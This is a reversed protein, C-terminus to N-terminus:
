KTVKDKVTLTLRGARCYKAQSPDGWPVTTSLDLDTMESDYWYGPNTKFKGTNGSGLDTLGNNSFLKTLCAMAATQQKVAQDLDQSVVYVYITYRLYLDVKGYGPLEERQPGYPDVMVAPFALARTPDKVMPNRWGYYFGAFGQIYTQILALIQQGRADFEDVMGLTNQFLAQSM